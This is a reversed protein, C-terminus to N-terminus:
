TGYGNNLTNARCVLTDSPGQYFDIIANSVALWTASQRYVHVRVELEEENVESLLYTYHQNDGNWNIPAWAVEQVYGDKFVSVYYEGIALDTANYLGSSSTFGQSVTESTDINMVNVLADNIENFNNDLVEVEIFGSNPGWAELHFYQFDEDGEFDIRNEITESKYGNKSIEIIYVGITLGTANFFGFNDTMGSIIIPYGPATKNRVVVSAGYIPSTFLNMVTIEIWGPTPPEPELKFTLYDDDGNFNIYDNKTNSYYGNKSVSVTYHGIYLGSANYFGTGDTTGSNYISGNDRFAVEVLANSIPDDTKNDLVTVEIFGTGPGWTELYFIIHDDDGEWDILNQKQEAKYGAMSVNVWYYGVDLETFNIFNTGKLKTSNLYSGGWSINTISVTASNLPEGTRDDYVWIEIYGTSSTDIRDPKDQNSDLQTKIPTFSFLIMSTFLFICASLLFVNKKYRSNSKINKM